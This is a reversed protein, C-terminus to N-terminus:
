IVAWDVSLYSETCFKDTFFYRRGRWLIKIPIWKTLKLGKNSPYIFIIRFIIWRLLFAKLLGFLCYLHRPFIFTAFPHIFIPYYLLTMILISLTSYICAPGRMFIYGDCIINQLFRHRRWWGRLLKCMRFHCQNIIVTM